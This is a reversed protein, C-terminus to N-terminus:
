IKVLHFCFTTFDHKVLPVTLGIQMLEDGGYVKGTATDRYDSAPDLSCLAFRACSSLPNYLKQFVIMMCQTQDPSVVSWATCNQDSRQSHFLTGAMLWSRQAKYAAIQRAIEDREEPTCLTLGLEYGLNYLRCVQYRTDLTTSRGTQHNPTISVHAGMVSQPYLLDFGSQITVRDCADTNDSTWNQPFYHLMGTDFRAGGSSCGEFLVDPYCRTIEDLAAYLGLIYRHAAEGQREPPLASSAVDTLPRNMDWKIYDIQGGALYGHLMDLLYQRVEARGLDLLYEHRGKVPAYSPVHVIWDPHTRYLQSNPSVAEPEFWLGFTLGKAHVISAVRDIGGPLKNQNCTWDGMSSRSDNGARFWGDDLVFLEIGLEKALQAQTEIKDLSVDYYMAEWSNLLVPRQADRWRPPMIHNRILKHFGQRMGNLGNTSYNLVVEPTDFAKGPELTWTFTDPNLGIQARVQGFTDKEMAASFNGSYILQFGYVEGTQEATGPQLLAFFPQHRPSSSGYCSGIRQVGQHLLARSQNVEKAHCGYLTLLEYDRAPLELSLSQVNRLRIATNGTNEMRQHRTIINLDRFITYYLHVKIGAVPASCVIEPTESEDPASFTMPLGPVSPKQPLVQWSCFKLDVVAAGSPGEAILAPLRYDGRGPTPYEFPLADFYLNQTGDAYETTYSRKSPNTVGTGHWARIAQGFYRHLLYTHDLLEIVYSITGNTLHAISGDSHFTISM